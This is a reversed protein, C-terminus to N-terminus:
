GRAKSQRLRGQLRRYDRASNATASLEAMTQKSINRSPILLSQIINSIVRYKDNILLDGHHHHHNDNDDAGLGKRDQSERNNRKGRCCYIRSCFAKVKQLFSPKKNQMVTEKSKM